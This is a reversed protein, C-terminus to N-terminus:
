AQHAQDLEMDRLVWLLQAKIYLGNPEIVRLARAVAEMISVCGGCPEKRLILSPDHRHNLQSSMQHPSTYYLAEHPHQIIIIQTKTLIPEASLTECLCARNPRSCKSYIPWRPQALELEPETTTQILANEREANSM